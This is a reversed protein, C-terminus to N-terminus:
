WIMWMDGRGFLSLVKDWSHRLQLFKAWASSDKHQTPNTQPRSPPRNVSTINVSWIHRCNFHTHLCLREWM